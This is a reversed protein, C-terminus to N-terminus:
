TRNTFLYKTEKKGADRLRIVFPAYLCLAYLDITHKIINGFMNKGFPQYWMYEMSFNKPINRNSTFRAKNGAM